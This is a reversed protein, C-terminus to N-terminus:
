NAESPLRVFNFWYEAVRTIIRVEGDVNAQIPMFSGVRRPHRRLNGEAAQSATLVVTPFHQLKPHCRIENSSTRGTSIPKNSDVSLWAPWGSSRDEQSTGNNRLFPQSGQDDVTVDIANGIEADRRTAAVSRPDDDNMHFRFHSQM